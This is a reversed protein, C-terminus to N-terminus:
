YLLGTMIESPSSPESQTVLSTVLQLHTVVASPLQIPPQSSHGRLGQSIEVAFRMYESQAVLLLCVDISM